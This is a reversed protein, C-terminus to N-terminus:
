PAWDKPPTQIGWVNGPRDLALGLLWLKVYEGLSICNVVRATVRTKLAPLGDLEVATGIQLPHRSRAACGQPNILIIQCQESFQCVPDLSILTVNIECPVRTGRRAPTKQPTSSM